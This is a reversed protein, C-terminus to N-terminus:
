RSWIRYLWWTRVWKQYAADQSASEFYLATKLLESVIDHGDEEHHKIEVGALMCPLCAVGRQDGTPLTGSRDAGGNIRKQTEDEGM